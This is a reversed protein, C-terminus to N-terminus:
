RHKALTDMVITHILAKRGGASEPVATITYWRGPYDWHEQFYEEVPHRDIVETVFPRTKRVIALAEKHIGERFEAAYKLDQESYEAM